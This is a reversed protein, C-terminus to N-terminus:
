YKIALMKLMKLIFFLYAMTNGQVHGLCPTISDSEGKVLPPLTLVALKPYDLTSIMQFSDFANM